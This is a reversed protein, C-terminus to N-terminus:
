IVPALGPSKVILPLLQAEVSAIAVLQEAISVKVGPASPVWVAESTTLSVPFALAPDDASLPAPIAPLRVIVGAVVLKPLTTTPDLLADFAIVTLFGFVAVSLIALAVADAPNAIALSWHLPPLRAGPAVQAIPTTNLGIWVPARLPLTVILSSAAPLGWDTASPPV